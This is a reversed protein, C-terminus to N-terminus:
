APLLRLHESQDKQRFVKTLNVSLHITEDWMEAEFAFKPMGGNKTVPPLQFFDGTVIIQIGGWPKSNKRILQGLKCFKDFMAGDVMSVEDIILVKTKTWRGSAKKNMKLKRLLIEPTDTALGVGGFSHLTVGGINCAAIGTSATVAVADPNRAYKNRLSHIIERLLVSKGTGASGTFFVNKQQQVVLSLVKQQEESLTVRQKINLASSTSKPQANEKPTLSTQTYVKKRAKQDGEWPLPRKPLSPLTQNVHRISSGPCHTAVSPVSIDCNIDQPSAFTSSTQGSRWDLVPSAYVTEKNQNLAALIAKRRRQSAIEKAASEPLSPSTTTSQLPGSSPLINGKRQVIEPSPSWDLQSSEPGDEEGWSRKFSTVRSLTGKSTNNPNSSSLTRATLIPM